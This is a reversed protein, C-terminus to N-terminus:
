VGYPAGSIPLALREMSTAKLSAVGKIVLMEDSYVYNTATTWVYIFVFTFPILFSLALIIRARM